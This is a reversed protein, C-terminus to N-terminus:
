VIVDGVQPDALGADARILALDDATVQLGAVLAPLHATVPQTPDQLVVGNQIPRFVPDTPATAPNVFLQLYPSDDGTPDLLGWLAFLVQLVSPNLMAQLQGIVALDHIFSPPIVAPSDATAGPGGGPRGPIPNVAIEQAT